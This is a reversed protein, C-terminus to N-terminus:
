AGPLSEIIEVWADQCGLKAVWRDIYDFDLAENQAFLISALDRVHKTQRSTNYFRIKYVILDEPSHVYVQGIPPGLDVLQRRDLAQLRLTDGPKLLFLEAKFSSHMHIANIPIDARRENLWQQMIDVPVLMGHRELEQSLAPMDVSGLSVVVDVDQTSRAEGWAALALSGGIMYQLGAAELADIVDRAFSKINM